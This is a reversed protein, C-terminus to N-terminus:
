ARSVPARRRLPHVGRRLLFLIDQDLVGALRATALFTGGSLVVTLAVGATAPLATLPLAVSAAALAPIATLFLSRGDLTPMRRHLWVLLALAVFTQAVANGLAAGAAGYVPILLLNLSVNVVAGSAGTWLLIAQEALASAVGSVTTGLIVAWSLALMIQAPGVAAAYEQGYLVEIAAPAVVVGVASGAFGLLLCFRVARQVASTTDPGPGESLVRTLAPGVAALLPAAVRWVTQSLGFAIGYMAVQRSDTLWELFFVESRQFVVVGLVVLVAHRAAFSWFGPPLDHRGRATLPMRRRVLLYLVLGGAATAAVDITLVAIVGAGHLVALVTLLPNGFGTALQWLAIHRFREQGSLVSVLVMLPALFLVVGAALLIAQADPGQRAGAFAAVVLAVAGAGYLSARLVVNAIAVEDDPRGKARAVAIFRTTTGPLGWVAVQSAASYLFVALVYVGFQEPGLRRAMVVSAATVALSPLVNAVLSWLGNRAVRATSKAEGATQTPEM